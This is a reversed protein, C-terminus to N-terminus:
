SHRIERLQQLSGDGGRRLCPFNEIQFAHSGVRDGVSRSSSLGGDGWDRDPPTTFNELFQVQLLTGPSFGLSIRRISGIMAGM